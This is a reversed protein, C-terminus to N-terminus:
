YGPSFPSGGHQFSDDSPSGMITGPTTNNTLDGGEQRCDLEEILGAVMIKMVPVVSYAGTGAPNRLEYLVGLLMSMGFLIISMYAAQVHLIPMGALTQSGAGLLPFTTLVVAALCWVLVFHITPLKKQLAGLRFARARRLGRITDYVRSPEGVSTLYMIEELPDDIPRKSLLLSPEVNLQYLDEYIYREICDLLNQYMESRGQAVLSIQELLSKAQTVEEFLAHYCAEQQQYLFYFTYCVTISFMLGSTTLINQIYQAYDNAVVEIAASDNIWSAVTLSMPPYVENAAWAVILSPVTVRILSIIQLYKRLEQIDTEYGDKVFVRAISQLIELFPGSSRYQEYKQM